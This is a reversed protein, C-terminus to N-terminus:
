APLLLNEESNCRGPRGGIECERAPAREHANGMNFNIHRIAEFYAQPM